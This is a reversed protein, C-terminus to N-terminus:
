RVGFIREVAITGLAASKRVQFRASLAYARVLEGARFPLVNNAMYGISVVPFIRAPPIDQVTRLLDHWRVSRVGVGLFYAALAPLLWIYRAERLAQGIREFDQGRVAFYLFVLSIAFGLWVRWSRMIRRHLQYSTAM